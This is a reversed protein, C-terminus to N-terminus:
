FAVPLFDTQGRIAFVFSMARSGEEPFNVIPV